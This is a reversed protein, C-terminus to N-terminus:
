HGSLSPRQAAPRAYGAEDDSFDEPPPGEPRTPVVAPQEDEPQAVTQAGHVFVAPQPAPPASAAQAHHVSVAAANAPPPSPLPTLTVNVSDASLKRGAGDSADIAMGVVGGAILNGLVWGSPSSTLNETTDQYGPKHFVLKHASGRSLSVAAPTTVHEQSDDIAVEAGVPASDIRVRETTGHVITACGTLATAACALAIAGVLVKVM